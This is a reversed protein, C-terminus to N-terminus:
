FAWFQYMDFKMIVILMCIALFITVCYKVKEAKTDAIGKKHWSLIGWILCIMLVVAMFAFIGSQVMYGVVSGMDGYVTGNSLRLFMVLFDVIIIAMIGSMSYNWKRFPHSKSLGKKKRIVKQILSCILGGGVLTIIGYGGALLFLLMCVLNIIAESTHIFSDSFGGYIYDGEQYWWFNLDEQAYGTISTAGVFSFPGEKITRAVLVIGKPVEREISALESDAFKGFILEYMDYNYVQEHAQNVMVVMGMGSDPDFALMSSQHFTNGGHGITEVGLQNAFFGHYNNPVGSDGYYSTATYLLDLTEQKEFLPCDSNENPTIARAYTLFDEMTGTASGVPYLLCYSIGKGPIKKGNIDYGVINERQQKVWANDDLTAGISTHEMGLPEFINKYVYEVYDMGSINQVIYAALAAGWNSYATVTGPKYVQKPQNSKLAEELSVVEDENSTQIGLYMEQFGAQHSMLDLMTIKEDFTLNTLFGEPLYNRIDEELDLKGQEVLQMVNIWILTKSVSGWEFVTNEDVMLRNEKDAYGFHSQYIVGNEDYVAVSMGVTTEKHEEVYNEIAIPIDSYSMGSPATQDTDNQNEESQSTTIQSVVTQEAAYSTVGASQFMLSGLMCMTILKKFTKM